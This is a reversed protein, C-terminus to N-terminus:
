PQQDEGPTGARPELIRSVFTALDGLSEFFGVDGSTLHEVRGRLASRDNADCAFQVVFARDSPFRRGGVGGGEM